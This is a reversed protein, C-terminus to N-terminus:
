AVMRYHYTTGPELGTLNFSLSLPALSGPHSTSNTVTGYAITPGFEFYTVVDAGSPNVSGRLTASTALVPSPPLTTVIPDVIGAGSPIWSPGGSLTATASNVLNITTTGTGEDFRFYAALGPQPPILRRNFSAAIEAPTRAVLWIRVDDMGGAFFQGGAERGGIRLQNQSPNFDGIVGTANNTSAPVGNTYTVLASGNYVLAVHTWHHLPAVVGTNIWTWHNPANIAMAWRITGDAFRAFEYEGEKNV